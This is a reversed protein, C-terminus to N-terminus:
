PCTESYVHDSYFAAFFIHIGYQMSSLMDKTKLCLLLMGSMDCISFAKKPCVQARVRLMEM